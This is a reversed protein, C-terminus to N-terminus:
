RDPRNQVARALSVSHLSIQGSQLFSCGFQDPWHFVIPGVYFNQVYSLKCDNSTTSNHMQPEIISMMASTM